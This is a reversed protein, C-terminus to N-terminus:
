INIAVSSIVLVFLTSQSYHLVVLKSKEAPSPQIDINIFTNISILQVMHM